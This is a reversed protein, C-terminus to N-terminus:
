LSLHNFSLLKVLTKIRASSTFTPISLLWRTLSLSFSLSRFLLFFPVFGFTLMTILSTVSQFSSSLSLTLSSINLYRQSFTNSLDKAAVEFGQVMLFIPFIVACVFSNLHSRASTSHFTCLALRLCVCVSVWVYVCYRQLFICHLYLTKTVSLIKTIQM